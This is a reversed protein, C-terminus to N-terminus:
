RRRGGAVLQSAHTALRAVRARLRRGLTPDRTGPFSKVFRRPQERFGMREYFAIADARQRGTNVELRVCGRLRAHREVTQMLATAAGLFRNATVLATIRREPADLELLPMVQFSALAVPEGHVEAVLVGADRNSLIRALRDRVRHPRTPYGLQDLLEALAGGDAETAARVVVEAAAGQSREFRRREVETHPKM